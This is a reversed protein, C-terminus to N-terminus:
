NKLLAFLKEIGPEIHDTPISSFGLRFFHKPKNNGHFFVSGPEFLIGEQKARELLLQSDLTAPGEVWVASGGFTPRRSGGPFHKDLLDGLLSWRKHLTQSLRNILADHYGRGLFQAIIFQNNSPPHRMMLRRLARAQRIFEAPAVMYGLRIGPALTKSLSGIYIVRGDEDLSKLAPTPAGVYNFESEYDDEIVIVDKDQAAKLLSQRRARPMTVTTPYHHSPTTYVCDCDGFQKDPVLGDQDVNLARLQSTFIGFTNEADVYGPSEFGMTRNKHLLLQAALFIGQQAGLTVLIEEPEAWVGRRPLLKKHIQDILEPNDRDIQDKAWDHIASIAAAERSCERWDSIPFLQQDYQGCIFPYPYKSWNSPKSNQRLGEPQIVLKEKWSVQETSPPLKKELQIRGKLIDANVFFGSRERSVLFGEDVLHQYAYVVTNRAVSLQKALKRSSPLPTHIDVHGDLISNVLMEQIRTQLTGRDHDPLQFLYETM